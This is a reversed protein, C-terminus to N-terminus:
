GRKAEIVIDYGQVDKCVIDAYRRAGTAYKFPIETDVDVAEGLDKRLAKRLIEALNANLSHEDAM